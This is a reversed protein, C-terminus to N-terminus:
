FTEQIDKLSLASHDFISENGQMKKNKLWSVVINKEYDTKVNAAVM